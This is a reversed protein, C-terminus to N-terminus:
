PTATVYFNNKLFRFVHVEVPELIHRQKLQEVDDIYCMCHLKTTTDYNKIKNKIRWNGM